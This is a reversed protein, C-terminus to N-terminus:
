EEGKFFGIIGMLKSKIDNYQYNYVRQEILITGEDYIEKIFEAGIRKHINVVKKNDRMTRTFVCNLGLINFAFNYLLIASELSYVSSGCCIWRGFEAEKELVNFNYLSITGLPQDNKSYIIFYYDNNRKQQSRVWSEQRELNDATKHIYKNNEPNNRIDIIFQSDSETVYRLKVFDGLLENEYIMM